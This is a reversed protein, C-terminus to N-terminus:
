SVWSRASSRLCRSLGLSASSAWPIPVTVYVSEALELILHSGEEVLRFSCSAKSCGLNIPGGQDVTVMRRRCLADGRRVSPRLEVELCYAGRAQDM